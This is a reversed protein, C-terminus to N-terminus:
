GHGECVVHGVPKPEVNVFSPKFLINAPFVEASANSKSAQVSFVGARQHQIFSIGFYGNISEHGVAV